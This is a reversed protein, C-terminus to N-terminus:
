HPILLFICPNWVYIGIQPYIHCCFCLSHCLHWRGECNETSRGRQRWWGERGEKAGVAGASSAWATTLVLDSFCNWRFYWLVAGVCRCASQGATQVPPIIIILNIIIVTVIIAGSMLCRGSALCEGASTRIAVQLPSVAIRKKCIFCQSECLYCSSGLTLYLSLRM